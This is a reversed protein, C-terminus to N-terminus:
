PRNLARAPLIAEIPVASAEAPPLSAAMFAVARDNQDFPPRRHARGDFPNFRGTECARVRVCVLRLTRGCRQRRLVAALSFVAALIAAIVGVRMWLAERQEKWALWAEGEVRKVPTQEKDDMFMMPQREFRNQPIAMRDVQAAAALSARVAPVGRSEFFALTEPGIDQRRYRQRVIM